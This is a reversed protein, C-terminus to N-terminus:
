LCILLLLLPVYYAHSGLFALIITSIISMIVVTMCATGPQMDAINLIQVMLTVLIAVPGMIYYGYIMVILMGIGRFFQGVEMYSGLKRRGVLDDIFGAIGIIAILYNYPAPFFLVMVIFPAIGVAKPIGGRIEEFLNGKIKSFLVTFVITLILTLIFAVIWM